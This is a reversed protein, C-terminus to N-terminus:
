GPKLVVARSCPKDVDDINVSPTPLANYAPQEAYLRINLLMDPRQGSSVTACKGGYGNKCGLINGCVCM